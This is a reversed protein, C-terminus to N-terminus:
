KKEKIAYLKNETQIYLVGNAVVPTARISGGGTMDITGILKKAKGHAFIHVEERDTGVYIKGDVWSPSSWIPSRLNHTWYQQGTQADVCHLYGALETIYVLGDHVAATSLTRGFVYNRGKKWAPPSPEGYHWVLASDKNIPDKADYVEIEKINGDKDKEQRTRTSVDGKKTMDICWFHGIGEEHEPDQGVGIYVKNDHVVPTSIFDNRTGKGGLKYRSEKPNCDFQWLPTGTKPEYARLWGDGGPFIIQGKGNVEAYVPSSWQGHMLVEGKDILQKFLAQIIKQKDGDQGNGKGKEKEKGMALKLLKETPDNKQWVVNGTRKDVAIFSPAKPAPIDIHNENVGNSTVAFVLDGVVVPSSTSLNHPFVGLDKIMDLKWVDKGDTTACNLKCDNSVYYINKGDVCCTSCIGEKPWDSVIGAALKDHIRQWLYKGTKEEFCMIIGKDGQVKPDRPAENNTGVFIKGDAIVPGGYAKSGLNATWLINEAPQVVKDKDDKLEIQWKLAVNKDRLNVLNRSPSGCWMPWPDTKDETKGGANAAVAQEVAPRNMALAAVVVMVALAALGLLSRRVTPYQKM